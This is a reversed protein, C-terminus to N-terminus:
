SEIERVFDRSTDVDPVIANKFKGIKAEFQNRGDFFVVDDGREKVLEHVQEPRLHQGGGIVGSEDVTIEESNDFAVLENKVAIYLRPFEDGTGQSWKFAIRKFGPYKKTHKVYKRLDDIDGGVTGNIGTPSILIRGKLNLAECLTKQWLQVAVPDAIPTFGYYLLVKQPNM